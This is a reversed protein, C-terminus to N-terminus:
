SSGLKYSIQLNTGPFKTETLNLENCLHQVAEDERKSGLHHLSVVLINKKYDPIIDVESTYIAKLLSRVEQPRSMKERLVNAMGTESRYAIMKITDIFHKSNVSLRKFQEDKPLDSLLIHKAIGKREKKLKELEFDLSEIEEKLKAKEKEYKAVSKESIEDVLNLAGFAATRRSLTASKGRIKSSYDRYAPNTVKVTDPVDETQHDIIRDLNYNERMYKFFNEQSWRAFMTPAINVAESCFDTTIISTQHGGESLKRIERVWLQGGIFTGREALSMKVEEGSVLKIKCTKFEKEPWDEKPYKHYTLCAIGTKKMKLFFQPSYGERDFIISFRHKLPNERIWDELTGQCPFEKELFPVVENELVQLLGPDVDQTIVMFPNGDMANIWYDTTARLCLRQRAVYHRPLKTQSGYYVRVHGDVYFTGVPDPIESIWDSCLKAGWPIAETSSIIAVKKRLTQAEPIRDLGLLKGWEGPPCFRLKEVNKIRALAMFALVIFISEIGYYGSPIKFFEGIHCLLGTALLAPLALLVGGNPIDCCAQFSIDVAGQHFISAAIRGLPNTAGTGLSARSDEM